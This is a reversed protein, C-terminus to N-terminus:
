AMFRKTAAWVYLSVLAGLAAQLAPSPSSQQLTFERLMVVFLPAGYFALLVWYFGDFTIRLRRRSDDDWRFRWSPTATVERTDVEGFYVLARALRMTFVLAVALFSASVAVAYRHSTLSSLVATRWSLYAIFVVTIHRLRLPGSFWQLVGFSNM